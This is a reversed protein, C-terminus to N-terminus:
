IWSALHWFRPSHQPLPHPTTNNPPTPLHQPTPLHPHRMFSSPCPPPNGWQSAPPFTVPSTTSLCTHIYHCGLLVGGPGRLVPSNSGEQLAGQSGGLWSPLKWGKILPTGHASATAMPKVENPILQALFGSHRTAQFVIECEELQGPPSPRTTKEPGAGESEPHPYPGQLCWPQPPPAEPTEEESVCGSWEELTSVPPSM